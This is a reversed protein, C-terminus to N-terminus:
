NYIYLHKLLHGLAYTADGVGQKRKINLDKPKQKVEELARLYYQYQLVRHFLIRVRDM